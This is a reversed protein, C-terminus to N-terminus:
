IVGFLPEVITDDVTVAEGAVRSVCSAVKPCVLIEGLRVPVGVAGVAAGPVVPFWIAVNSKTNALAGTRGYM